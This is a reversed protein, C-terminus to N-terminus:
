TLCRLIRHSVAYCSRWLEFVWHNSSGPAPEDSKLLDAAIKIIANVFDLHYLSVSIIRRILKRIDIGEISEFMKVITSLGKPFLREDLHNLESEGEIFQNLTTFITCDVENVIYQDRIGGKLVESSLWGEQNKLSIESFSDLDEQSTFLCKRANLRLFAQSLLISFRGLWIKGKVCDHSLFSKGSYFCKECILCSYTSSNQIGMLNSLSRLVISNEYICDARAPNTLIEHIVSCINESYSQYFELIEVNNVAEISRRLVADLSELSCLEPLMLELDLFQKTSIGPILFELLFQVSSKGDLFFELEQDDLRGSWDIPDDQHCHEESVPVSDVQFLAMFESLLELLDNYVGELPNFYDELCIIAQLLRSSILSLFKLESVPRTQLIERFYSFFSKSFESLLNSYVSKQINRYRFDISILVFLEDLFIM